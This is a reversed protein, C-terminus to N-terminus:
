GTGLPRMEKPLGCYLIDFRKELLLEQVGSIHDQDGHSVCAYDAKRWLLEYLFSETNELTKVDFQRWRDGHQGM